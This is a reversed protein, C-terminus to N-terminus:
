WELEQEDLLVSGKDRALFLHLSHWEMSDDHTTSANPLALVDLVAVGREVQEQERM